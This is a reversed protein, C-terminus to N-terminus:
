QLVDDIEFRMSVNSDKGKPLFNAIMIIDGTSDYLGIESINKGNGESGNLTCYYECKNEATKLIYEDIPKRLFEDALSEGIPKVTGGSAGGEGFAFGVIKPLTIAGARAKLLKEKGKATVKAEM